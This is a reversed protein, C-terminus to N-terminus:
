RPKGAYVQKYYDALKLESAAAEDIIVTARPHLQLASAPVMATLPGEIAQALCRAKGQGTAILVLHRAELITGIGMTIVHKPVADLVGDFFRANDQRTAGTLTKIRTRSALSSSPENFAIHGDTGIGLLLLDMGGAEQIRQEYRACMASVDPTTPDPSILNSGALDLHQTFRDQIFSRYLQAHGAPLGLYEDLLFATTSAFSLGEEKHRRILERYALLPS